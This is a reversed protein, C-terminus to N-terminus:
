SPIDLIPLEMARVQQNYIMGRVYGNVPEISDIEQLTIRQGHRDKVARDIDAYLDPFIQNCQDNNFLLYHRDRAFDWTDNFSTSIAQSTVPGRNQSFNDFSSGLEGSSSYILVGLLVAFIVLVLGRRKLLLSLNQLTSAPEMTQVSLPSPRLRPEPLM